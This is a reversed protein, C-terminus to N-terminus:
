RFLLEQAIFIDKEDIAQVQTKLANGCLISSWLCLIPFVTLIGVGVPWGKWYLLVQTRKGPTLRRKKASGTAAATPEGGGEEESGSGGEWDPEFDAM